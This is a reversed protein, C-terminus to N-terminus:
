THDTFSKKSHKLTFYALLTSAIILVVTMGYTLLANTGSKALRGTERSTAAGPRSDPDSSSTTLAALGVPDVIVGNVEGDVDLSEGDTVQYSITTVIHSGINQTAITADEILAYAETRPDYKRALADAQSVDYYFVEVTTTAGLDGCDATFDLLSNDYSFEDDQMGLMDEDAIEISQVECGDSLELAITKGTSENTLSAVKAQEVDPTGDNNLDDLPDEEDDDEPLPLNDPVDPLDAVYLKADYTGVYIKGNAEDIAMATTNTPLGKLSQWRVLDPSRLIQEPEETDYQQSFDIMYYGDSTTKTDGAIGNFLRSDPTTLSATLGHPEIEVVDTGDFTRIHDTWYCVIKGDFVVPNPGGNYDGAYCIPETTGTTWNTGDFIQVPDQDDIEFGVGDFAQLYMKGGMARGWYYRNGRPAPTEVEVWTEGEDTSRWVTAVGEGTTDTSGFLWLDTGTLTEIDYIHLGSVPSEIEWSSGDSSVAYGIACNYCNRADINTTYIKGNIVKWNGISETPFTAAVGEFMGTSINFPNIDVPGTNSNYDGYGALLRGNFLGLETIQRQWIQPEAAAQPHTTLETFNLTVDTSAANARISQVFAVTLIQITVLLLLLTTKGTQGILKKSTKTHQIISNNM